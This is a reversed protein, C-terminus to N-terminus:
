GFVVWGALGVLVAAHLWQLVSHGAAFRTVGRSMRAGVLGLGIHFLLAIATLWLGLIWLQSALSTGAPNVFAPLFTLFFLLAKPNLLANVAARVLVQKPQPILAAEASEQQRARLASSAMWLLYGAGAYRVLALLEPRESVMLGLGTAVAATLAVDALAIGLAASVGGNAGYAAGHSLVFIMNPGPSLLLIVVAGTFAMLTTADVM